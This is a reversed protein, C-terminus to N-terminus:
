PSRLKPIELTVTTGAGMKSEIHITGGAKEIFRRAQMVGLGTGNPRTSFFPTGIQALVEESMGSGDDAITVKVRDGVDSASVFVRGQAKLPDAFAQAANRMLNILTQILETANMAVKPLESPGDYLFRADVASAISRCVNMAYRILQLPDAEKPGDDEQRASFLSRLQTIIGTLYRCGELLERAVQPLEDALERVRDPDQLKLKGVKTRLLEALAEVIDSRSAIYDANYTMHTLPQILDHIVASSMAGLTVLRETELLRLLLESSELGFAHADLAWELIGELEARDWPKILYRVVLGENVAKLIPDLDSFATIIIRLVDPHLQKARLLLENGSMDPMRQDTVLVAVPETKLVELAARGTEVTKIKFRASFSHEFVLRNAREDDVYLIIADSRSM